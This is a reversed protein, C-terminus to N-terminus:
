PSRPTCRGSSILVAFSRPPLRTVLTVWVVFSAMARMTASPMSFPSLVCTMASLMMCSIFVLSFRARSMAWCSVM